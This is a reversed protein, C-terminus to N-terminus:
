EERRPHPETPGRKTPLRTINIMRTKSIDRVIKYWKSTYQGAEGYAQRIIQLEGDLEATRVEEVEGGVEGEEEETPCGRGDEVDEGGDRSESRGLVAAATEVDVERVGETM